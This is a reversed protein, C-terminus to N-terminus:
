RMVRASVEPSFNMPIHSGRVPNNSYNYTAVRFYYVRGPELGQIKIETRNGLDVPSSGLVSSYGFYENPRTGFYLAYGEPDGRLVRDWSLQIGDDHVQVAIRSPAPPAPQTLYDIVLDQLGPRNLGRGDPLFEAMVYLFRGREQTFERTNGSPIWRPDGPRPIENLIVDSLFWYVNAETAGPTLSQTNITQIRAGPYILDKRQFIVYGPDQSVGLVAPDEVWKSSIRFDDLLGNLQRGITLAPESLEGIYPIYPNGTVTGDSTVYRLAEPIGDVLYELIHRQPDYRLLHHSWRRPVLDTRQGLEVRLGQFGHDQPNESGRVFFNDLEWTLRRNAVRANVQQFLPSTGTWSSGQWLFVSGGERPAGSYLWFEISFEGLHNGPQFMSNMGPSLVMGRSHENFLGAGSGMARLQDQIIVDSSIIRYGGQVLPQPPLNFSLLLDTEPTPFYEGDSLGLFEAGGDQRFIGTNSSSIWSSPDLVNMNVRQGFVFIQGLLPLAVSLSFLLTIFRTTTRNM